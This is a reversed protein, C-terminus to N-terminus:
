PQGGKYIMNTRVSANENASDSNASKHSNLERNYIMFHPVM